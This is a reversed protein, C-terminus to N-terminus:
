PYVLKRDILGKPEFKVWNKKDYKLRDTIIKLVSFNSAMGIHSGRVEVNQHTADEVQEMCNKWAVIGDNKSYIATTPVPAPMPLNELFSSNVNKVQKGGNLASYIWSVNNPEALGSFPSGMTILQRIMKPREKAIQRAYVGGLSWGILSIPQGTKYYIEEVRAMLPDLFELKGLNRGMGWDYVDYGQNAIYERLSNTSVESSMFGPLVMVPHGDGKATKAFIKKYPVSFSKELIALGPESLLKFM